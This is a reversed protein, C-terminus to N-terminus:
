LFSAVKRLVGGLLVLTSAISSQDFIGRGRGRGIIKKAAPPEYNV